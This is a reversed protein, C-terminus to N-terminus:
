FFYFNVSDNLNSISDLLTSEDAVPHEENSM